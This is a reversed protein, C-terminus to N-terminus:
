QAITNPFQGFFKGHGIPGRSGGGFTHMDGLIDSLKVGLSEEWSEFDAKRQEMEKKMEEMKTKREDDTLASFDSKERRPKSARMEALKAIISAKQDETIKGDTVAQALKAEIESQRKTEMEQRQNERETREEELIKNVETKDLNFKDVLKQILPPYQDATEAFVTTSRFAITGGIVTLVVASLIVLRNKNM